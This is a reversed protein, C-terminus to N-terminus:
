SLLMAALRTVTLWVRRVEFRRFLALMHVYISEDRKMRGNGSCVM